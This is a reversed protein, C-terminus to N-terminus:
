NLLPHHGANRAGGPDPLGLLRMRLVLSDPSIRLLDAALDISGNAHQLAVEIFQTEVRLASEALLEPLSTEGIASLMESLDLLRGSAVGPALPTGAQPRLTIGIHEQDGEALLAASLDALLPAAGAPRIMVSAQGIIGRSRVRALLAPWQQQQDGLTEALSRGKVQEIEAAGCLALFAANGWSVRGASDTVAVADPTRAIFDQVATPEGPDANRARLLLCMRSDTRLPTASVDIPTGCAAVRLRREAARGTARATSLLEDFVPQLTSEILRRLDQGVWSPADPRFLRGASANAEVVAMTEADLVLVADHAVQFMLQYHSEAQRRKWYGRELEQQVDVFKQQIASVARLDRGVALLPGDEGLRLAAWSMPIEGGQSGPHSLERRRSVGHAQAEQLLLEVKRRTPATVTEAWRRGVWSAGQHDLPLGGDAVSRIVGDEGIVLAIDGAVRVVAAAVEPALESLRQHDDAPPLLSM